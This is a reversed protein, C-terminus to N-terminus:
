VSLFSQRPQTQILDGAFESHDRPGFFRNRNKPSIEQIKLSDRSKLQGVPEAQNHRLNSQTHRSMKQKLLLLDKTQENVIAEDTFSDIKNQDLGFWRGVLNELGPREVFWYICFASLGILISTLIVPPFSISVATLFIGCLALALSQGAFFGGGFFLIGCIGAAVTKMGKLFGHTLAAKYHARADDLAQHRTQLMEIMRIFATKEEEDLDEALADDIKKRILDIQEIQSMYVDLLKRTYQLKVELNKSIEVLDFGYFVIVSLTSFAFGVTFVLPAPLSSFLGLISTIGDFGDCISLATGAVALLGFQIKKLWSTPKMAPENPNKEAECLLSHYLDELLSANLAELCFRSKKHTQINQNLWAILDAQHIQDTEQAPWTRLAAEDLTKLKAIFDQTHRSLKVQKDM